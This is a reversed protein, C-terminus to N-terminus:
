NLNFLTRANSGLILERERATQALADIRALEYPARYLPYDSGWLLREAGYRDIWARLLPIAPNASTDVYVNLALAASPFCDAAQSLGFHALICPIRPFERAVWAVQLPMSTPYTGTHWLVPVGLKEIREYVPFLEEGFPFYQHNAPHLKVGRFRKDGAWRHLEALSGPVDRLDLNIYGYLRGPFGDCAARMEDNDAQPGAVIASVVAVDVDASDM